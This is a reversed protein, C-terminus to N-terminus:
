RLAQRKRLSINLLLVGIIILAGGITAGTSLRDGMLLLGALYAILPETTNIISATGAGIRKVAACFAVPSIFGPTFALLVIYLWQAPTQPFVPEGAMLCKLVNAITPVIMMYGMVVVASYSSLRKAGMSMAWLAYLLGATLALILGTPNLAAGGSPTYVVAVLGAMTLILCFIRAPYPRERGTILEILNVIIIYSFVILAAVAGPLYRYSSSMCFVCVFIILGVGALYLLHSRGVKIKERRILIYLWIMSTGILYRGTLVTEVSAGELYARQTLAPMIGYFFSALLVLLVGITENGFRKKTM